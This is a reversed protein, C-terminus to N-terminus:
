AGGGIRVRRDVPQRRALALDQLQRGGPELVALDTLPEPDAPARDLLVHLVDKAVQADWVAGLGCHDPHERAQAVLIRWSGPQGSRASPRAMRRSLGDSGLSARALAPWCNQRAFTGHDPAPAWTRRM